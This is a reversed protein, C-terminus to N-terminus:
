INPIYNFDNETKLFNPNIGHIVKFNFLEDYINDSRNIVM